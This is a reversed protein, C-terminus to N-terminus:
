GRIIREEYALDARTIILAAGDLASGQPRIITIGEQAFRTTLQTFFYPHAIVGGWLSVETAQTARATALLADCARIVIDRAVADGEGAADLVEPTFRGLRRAPNGEASVWAPAAALDGVLARARNTLSTPAGRGDVDRLAALLGEQGIWRGSGEDGLWPGWGDVQRTVGDAAVAYAVAGTGVILITGKGGNFAGAHAALADNILAVPAGTLERVQAVLDRAAAPAAEVGAAGIGVGDLHVRESAPLQLLVGRFAHASQAAGDLDAVGPAGPGTKESIVGHADFLRARCSTKGLDVALYRRDTM